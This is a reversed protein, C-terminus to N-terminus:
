HICKKANNWTGTKKHKVQPKGKEKDRKETEKIRNEM